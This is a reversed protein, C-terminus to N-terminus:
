CGCVGCNSRRFSMFQYWTWIAEREQWLVIKTDMGRTFETGLASLSDLERSQDPEPGGDDLWSLLGDVSSWTTSNV